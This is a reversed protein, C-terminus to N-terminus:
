DDVEDQIRRTRQHVQDDDDSSGDSEDSSSTLADDQRARVRADGQGYLPLNQIQDEWEGEAKMTAKKLQGRKYEPSKRHEHQAREKDVEITVREMTEVSFNKVGLAELAVLLWGPGYNWKLVAIAVQGRYVSRRGLFLRKPALAAVINHFSELLSSSDAQYIRDLKGLYWKDVVADTMRRWIGVAQESIKNPIVKFWRGSNKAKEPDKIARCWTDEPDQPCHSHDDFLHRIAVGIGNAIADKEGRNQTFVYSLQRALRRWHIVKGIRGWMPGMPDSPQANLLDAPPRPYSSPDSTRQAPDSVASGGPTTMRGPSRPSQVGRVAAITDLVGASAGRRPTSRSAERQAAEEQRAKLVAVTKRVDSLNPENKQGRWDRDKPVPLHYGFEHLMSNTALRDTKARKLDDYIVQWREKAPEAYQKKFLDRMEMGYDVMRKMKHSFCEHVKFGTTIMPDGCDRIAAGISLDGDQILPNVRIKTDYPLYKVMKLISEAEMAKATGNFNRPCSGCDEWGDKSARMCKACYRQIPECDLIANPRDADMLEAIGLLSDGGRMRSSRKAYAMDAIVRQDYCDAAEDSPAAGADKLRRFVDECAFKCSKKALDVLKAGIRETLADFSSRDQWGAMGCAQQLRRAGAYFNGDSLLGLVFRVNVERPPCGRAGTHARHPCTDFFPMKGDCGPTQCEAPDVSFVSGLGEPAEKWRHGPVTAGCKGSLILSLLDRLQGVNVMRHGAMMDGPEVAASRDGQTTQRTSYRRITTPTAVAEGAAGDHPTVSSANEGAARVVFSDRWPGLSNKLPPLAVRPFHHESQAQSVNELVERDAPDPETDEEPEDRRERLTNNLAFGRAQQQKKKSGERDRKRQAALLAENQRSSPAEPPDLGASSGGTHQVDGGQRADGAVM